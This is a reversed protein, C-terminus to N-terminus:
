SFEVGAFDAIGAMRDSCRHVASGFPNFSGAPRGVLDLMAALVEDAPGCDDDPITSTHRFVEGCSRCRFLTYGKRDDGM